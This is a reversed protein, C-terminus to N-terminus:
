DDARRIGRPLGRPHPPICIIFGATPPTFLRRGALTASVASRAARNNMSAIVIVIVIVFRPERRPTKHHSDYDHGRTDNAQRPKSTTIRM